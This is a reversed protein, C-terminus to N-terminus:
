SKTNEDVEQRRIRPRGEEGPHVAYGGAREVDDHVSAAILLKEESLRDLVSGSRKIVSPHGVPERIGRSTRNSEAGQMRCELGRNKGVVREIRGCDDLNTRFGTLRANQCKLKRAGEGNVAHDSVVAVGQSKKLVLAEEDQVAGGAYGIRQLHDEAGNRGLSLEQDQLS